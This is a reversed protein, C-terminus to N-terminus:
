RMAETAVRTLNTVLVLDDISTGQTATSISCRVTGKFPGHERVKIWATIRGVRISVEVIGLYGYVSWEACGEVFRETEVDGHTLSPLPGPEVNRRRCDALYADTDWPAPVPLPASMRSLGGCSKRGLRRGCTGSETMPEACTGCVRVTSTEGKAWQPWDLGTAHALATAVRWAVRWARPDHDTVM